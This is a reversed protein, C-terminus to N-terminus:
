KFFFFWHGYSPNLYAPPHLFILKLCHCSFSDSSFFSISILFFFSDVLWIFFVISLMILLCSWVSLWNWLLPCFWSSGINLCTFLFVVSFLSWLMWSTQSVTLLSSRLIGPIFPASIFDFPVSLKTLLIIPSFKGFRSSSISVWVCSVNLIGFLCSCSSDRGLM